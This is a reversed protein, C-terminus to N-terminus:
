KCQITTANFSIENSKTTLFSDYHVHDDDYFESVNNADVSMLKRLNAVDNSPTFSSMGVFPQQKLKSSMSAIFPFNMFLGFSFLVVFMLGLNKGTNTANKGVPAGVRELYQKMNGTQRMLEEVVNWKSKQAELEAKLRANEAMLDDMAQRKRDRSLAASERNKILRKQRRVEKMEEDTLSKERSVRQVLSEYEASSITLLHERSLVVSNGFDRVDVTASKAKRKRSRKSGQTTTKSAFEHSFDDEMDPSAEESSVATPEFDFDDNDTQKKRGRTSRAKRVSSQEQVVPPVPPPPTNSEVSSSHDTFGDM